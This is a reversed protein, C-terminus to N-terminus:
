SSGSGSGGSSLKRPSSSYRAIRTTPGTQALASSTADGGGPSSLGESKLRQLQRSFRPMSRLAAQQQHSGLHPSRRLRPPAFIHSRDNYRGRMWILSPGM